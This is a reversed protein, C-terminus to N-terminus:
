AILPVAGVTRRLVTQTGAVVRHTLFVNYTAGPTLGSVYESAGQGEYTTSDTSITREDASALFVTGAGVTSGARIEFSCSSYNAGSNVLTARWTILVKGSTPAVFSTGCINAPSLTSTFSTSTTTRSTTPDTNSASSTSVQSELADVRTEHDNVADTIDTFWAPDSVEGDGLAIIPFTTM